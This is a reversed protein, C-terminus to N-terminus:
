GAVEDKGREQEGDAEGTRERPAIANDDEDADFQHQIRRVQIKDGEPAEAFMGFRERANEKHNKRNTDRSRFGGDTEGQDDRNVPM